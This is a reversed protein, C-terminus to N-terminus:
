YTGRGVPNVGIGAMGGLTTPMNPAAQPAIGSGLQGQASAVPPLASQGMGQGQGMGGMGQLINQIAPHQMLLAILGQMGGPGAGTGMMPNVPSSGPGQGAMPMATGQPPGMPSGQGGVMGPSSPQSFQSPPTMGPMLTGTTMRNRYSQFPNQMPAQGGGQAWNGWGQPPQGIMPM